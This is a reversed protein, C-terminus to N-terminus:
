IWILSGKVTMQSSTSSPPKHTLLATLTSPQASALNDMTSSPPSTPMCRSCRPCHVGTGPLLSCERRMVTTSNPWFDATERRMCGGGVTFSPAHKRKSGVLFRDTFTRGPFGAAMRMSTLPSSDAACWVSKWTGTTSTSSSASSRPLTHSAATRPALGKLTSTTFWLSMWIRSAFCASCCRTSMGGGARTLSARTWSLSLSAPTGPPTAKLPPMAQSACRRM